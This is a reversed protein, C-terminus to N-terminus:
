CESAAASTSSCSRKGSRATTTTTSPSKARTKTFRKARATKSWSSPPAPWSSTVGSPRRCPTAASTLWSRPNLEYIELLNSYLEVAAPIFLGAPARRVSRRNSLQQTRRNTAPVWKGDVNLGPRNHWLHASRNLVLHLLREAPGIQSEPLRQPTRNTQTM